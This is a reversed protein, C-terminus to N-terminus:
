KHHLHHIAQIEISFGMKKEGMDCGKKKEEKKWKRKNRLRNVQM